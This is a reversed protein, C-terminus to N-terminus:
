FIKPVTEVTYELLIQLCKERQISALHINSFHLFFYTSYITVKKVHDSGKIQMYKMHHLDCLTNTFQKCNQLLSTKISYVVYKQLDSEDRLSM